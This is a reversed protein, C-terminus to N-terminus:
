AGEPEEEYGEGEEGTELETPRESTTVEEDEPEEPAVAAPAAQGFVFGRVPYAPWLPQEPLSQQIAAGGFDFAQPSPVM